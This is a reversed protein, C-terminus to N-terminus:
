ERHESATSEVITTEASAVTDGTRLKRASLMADWHLREKENEVQMVRAELAAQKRQSEWLVDMGHAIAIITAMM